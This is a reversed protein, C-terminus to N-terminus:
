VALPPASKLRAYAWASLLVIGALLAIAPYPSHVLDDFSMHLLFVDMWWAEDIGGIEFYDPLRAFTVFALCVLIEERARGSWLQLVILAVLAVSLGMLPHLLYEGVNGDRAYGVIVPAEIIAVAAAKVWTWSPVARLRAAVGELHLM